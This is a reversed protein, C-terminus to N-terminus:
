ESQTQNRPPLTVNINLQDVYQDDSIEGDRIRPTFYANKLLEEAEAATIGRTKHIKIDRIRCDASRQFGALIQGVVPRQNSPGLRGAPDYIPWYIGMNRHDEWLQAAVCHKALRESDGIKYNMEVLRKHLTLVLRERPYGPLLFNLATAYARRASMDDLRDRKVQGMYYYLEAQSPAPILGDSKELIAIAKTAFQNARDLEGSKRYLRALGMNVKAAGLSNATDQATLIDRAADFYRYALEPEDRLLAEDGAEAFVVVLELANKGFVDRHLSVTREFLDLAVPERYFAAAKAYEFSLKALLPKDTACEQRALRYARQAHLFTDAKHRLGRADHYADQADQISSWARCSSANETATPESQLAGGAASFSLAFFLAKPIRM